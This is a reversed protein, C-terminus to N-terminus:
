IFALTERPLEKLVEGQQIVLYGFFNQPWTYVPYMKKFQVLSRLHDTSFKEQLLHQPLNMLDIADMNFARTNLTSIAGFLGQNILQGREYLEYFENTLLDLLTYSCVDFFEFNRFVQILDTNYIEIVDGPRIDDYATKDFILGLREACMKLFYKDDGTTKADMMLISFYEFRALFRVQEAASLSLLKAVSRETYPKVKHGREQLQQSYGELTALVRQVQASVGKAPSSMGLIESM